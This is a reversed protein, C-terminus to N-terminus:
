LRSHLNGRRVHQDQSRECRDQHFSLPPSALEQTFIDRPTPPHEDQFVGALSTGMAEVGVVNEIKQSIKKTFTSIQSNLQKEAKDQHM